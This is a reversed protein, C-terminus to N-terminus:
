PPVTVTGLDTMPAGPTGARTAAYVGVSGGVAVVAIGTWFWWQKYVPRAGAPVERAGTGDRGQADPDLRTPTPTLKLQASKERDIQEELATITTEVQERNDADPELHLYRKYSFVAAETDGLNRQAQGIMFLIGPIPKEEFAKQYQEIAAAFKRLNFLKQGKEYYKKAVQEAREDAPAQAADPTAPGGRQKPAAAASAATAAVLAGAFLLSARM